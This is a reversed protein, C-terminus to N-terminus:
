FITPLSLISVVSVLIKLCLWVRCPSDPRVAENGSRM